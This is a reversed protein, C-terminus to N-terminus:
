PNKKPLVAGTTTTTTTTTSPPPLQGNAMVPPAQSKGLQAQAKGAETRAHAERGLNLALDAEATARAILTAARENDKSESGMLAKAADLNEQALKAHLESEPIGVGSEQARGIDLKAQAFEANPPPV